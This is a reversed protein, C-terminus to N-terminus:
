EEPWESEPVLDAHRFSIPITDGSDVRQLKYHHSDIDRGGIRNVDDPSDEVIECAVGHLHSDPDKESLYIRVLDGQEYPTDAPQPVKEM